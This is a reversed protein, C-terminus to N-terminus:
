SERASDLSKLNGYNVNYVVNQVTSNMSIM